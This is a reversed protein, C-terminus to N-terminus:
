SVKIKELIANDLFEKLSSGSAILEKPFISGKILGPFSNIELIYVKDNAFMLDIRAHSSGKVAKYAKLAAEKIKESLEETIQAPCIEDAKGPTYKADYDFFKNKSKIEVVPLAKAKLYNGVIGVSFERGKIYEEVIFEHSYELAKKIADPLDEKKNVLSIGRSAGSSTTKIMIPFKLKSNIKKIIEDLDPAGDVVEFGDPVLIGAGKFLLKAMQKDFCVTSTKLSPSIYPIGVTELLGILRGDEGFTNYIAVIAVDFNDRMFELSLKDLDYFSCIKKDNLIKDIPVYSPDNKLTELQIRQSEPVLNDIFVLNINYKGEDLSSLINLVTNTSGTSTKINKATFIALNIKKVPM